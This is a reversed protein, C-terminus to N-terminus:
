SIYDIAKRTTTVKRVFDAVEVHDPHGAYDRLAAESEHVSLLLIDVDETSSPLFDVIAELHQVCDLSQLKNLMVQLKLANERASCGEAQAKFTWWVIHKVMIRDGSHERLFLNLPLTHLGLVGEYFICTISDEADRSASLKRRLTFFSDSTSRSPVKNFFVKTM